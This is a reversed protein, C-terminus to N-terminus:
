ESSDMSSSEGRECLESVPQTHANVHPPLLTGLPGGSFCRIAESPLVVTIVLGVSSNAFVLLVLQAPQFWVSPLGLPTSTLATIGLAIVATIASNHTELLPNLFTM